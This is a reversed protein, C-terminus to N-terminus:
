AFALNELHGVYLENFMTPATWVSMGRVVTPVTGPVTRSSTRLAQRLAKRVTTQQVIRVAVTSTDQLGTRVYFQM